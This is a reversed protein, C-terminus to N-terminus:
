CAKLSTLIRMAVSPCLSIPPRRPAVLHLYADGKGGVIARDLKNVKDPSFCENEFGHQSLGVYWVKNHVSILYCGRAEPLGEEEQNVQVWFERKATPESDFLGDERRPMKFPGFVKYIIKEGM